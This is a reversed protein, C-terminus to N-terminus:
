GPKWAAVAAALAAGHAVAVIELDNGDHQEDLADVLDSQSEHGARLGESLQLRHLEDFDSETEALSGDPMRPRAPMRIGAAALAAAAIGFLIVVEWPSRVREPTVLKALSVLRSEVLRLNTVGLATRLEAPDLSEILKRFDSFAFPATEGPAIPYQVCRCHHHLPIPWSGSIRTHYPLCRGCTNVLSAIFQHHVFETDNMWFMNAEGTIVKATAVSM